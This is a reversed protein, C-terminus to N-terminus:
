RNHLARELAEVEKALTTDEETMAEVKQCAYMITTHDKGGFFQGLAPLSLDTLKRALFMAIQRPFAVTRLRSASRMDEVKIKYHSAVVEQILEVTIPPSSGSDKTDLIDDLVRKALDQTIKEKVITSHAAIKILCGELARINSKIQTAIFMAVEHPLEIQETEAKKKLIAVKTEFDPPQIDAILGMEFRSRLREELTPIKKPPCDSSIVIQKQTDYLANFTHFFEEQTREKGAIFQIDDILLLDISRYKQRFQQMTDFRIANILENMFREFSLYYVRFKSTSEAKVAHGIAHMLHTKGLGVGGYIFLPNYAQSPQEAVALSAAHAFQNSGGVVYTEFTYKPNLGVHEEAIQATDTEKIEPRPLEVTETYMNEPEPSSRRTLNPDITFTIKIDSQTFSRLIDLIRNMYHEKLWNVFYQDPVAIELIGDQFSRQQTPSFWTQFSSPNMQMAIHELVKNWLTNM